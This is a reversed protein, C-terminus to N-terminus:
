RFFYDGSSLRVKLIDKYCGLIAKFILLLLPHLASLWFQAKAFKVQTALLAAQRGINHRCGIGTHNGKGGGEEGQPLIRTLLNAPTKEGLRCGSISVWCCNGASALGATRIECKLFAKIAPHHGARLSMQNQAAKISSKQQGTPDALDHPFHFINTARIWLHELIHYNNWVHHGM